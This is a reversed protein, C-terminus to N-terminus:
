QKNKVISVLDKLGIYLNVIGVLYLFYVIAQQHSNQAMNLGLYICLGGLFFSIFCKLYKNM